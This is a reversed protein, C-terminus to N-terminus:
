VFPICAIAYMGNENENVAFKYPDEIFVPFKDNIKDVTIIITINRSLPPLGKDQAIITLLLTANDTYKVLGESLLSNLNMEKKLRVLGTTEDVDFYSSLQDSDKSLKYLVTGNEQEDFDKAILLAVITGIPSREFINRDLETYNGCINGRCFLPTNDNVDLVSIFIDASTPLHDKDVAYVRFRYSAQEERDLSELVMISGDESVNFM